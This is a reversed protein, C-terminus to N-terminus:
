PVAQEDIVEQISVELDVDNRALCDVAVPITM